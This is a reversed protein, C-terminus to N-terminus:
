RDAEHCSLCIPFSYWKGNGLIEDNPAVSLRVYKDGPSIGRAHAFDMECWYSRRAKRVKAFIM